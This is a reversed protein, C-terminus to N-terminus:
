DKKAQYRDPADFIDMVNVHSHFEASHMTGEPIYYSDGKRYVRTDDGITLSMEGELMVGWQACHAHPPIKGTPMIDFFVMQTKEGQLLWGRVGDMNIDVEPLSRILEPYITKDWKEIFGQM